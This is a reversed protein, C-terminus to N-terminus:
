SSSRIVFVLLARHWNNLFGYTCFCPNVTHLALSTAVPGVLWCSVLCSM